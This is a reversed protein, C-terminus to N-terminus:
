DPKSYVKMENKSDRVIYIKDEDFAVGEAGHYGLDWKGLLKGWATLKYLAADRSSVIWLCSCEEDYAVDNLSSAWNIRYEAVQGENDIVALIPPSENVLFLAEHRPDYSIGEPGTTQNGRWRTVVYDGPYARVEGSTERIVLWREQNEDWTLGETDGKTHYISRTDQAQRTMEFINGPQNDDVTYLKGDKVYLGSTEDINHAYVGLKQLDGGIAPLKQLDGGIAPLAFLFAALLKLM